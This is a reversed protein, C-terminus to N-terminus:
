ENFVYNWGNNHELPAAFNINLRFFDRKSFEKIHVGSTHIYIGRAERLNVVLNYLVECVTVLTRKMLDSQM